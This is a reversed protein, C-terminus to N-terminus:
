KCWQVNFIRLWYWRAWLTWSGRLPLKGLTHFTCLHLFCDQFLHNTTFRNQSIEGFWRTVVLEIDWENGSPNAAYICHHIFIISVCYLLPDSNDRLPRACYDPAITQPLPRPCHDPAITQPLLRACYDPAITQRLLRLEVSKFRFVYTRTKSFVTHSGTWYGV